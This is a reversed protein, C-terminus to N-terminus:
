MERRDGFSTLFLRSYLYWAIWKVSCVSLAAANMMRGSSNRLPTRSGFKRYPETFETHDVFVFDLHSYWVSAFGILKYASQLYFCAIYPISWLGKMEKLKLPFLGVIADYMELLSTCYELLLCLLESVLISPSVFYSLFLSFTILLHRILPVVSSRCM